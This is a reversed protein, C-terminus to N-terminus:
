HNSETRLRGTELNVGSACRQRGRHHRTPIGFCVSLLHRDRNHKGYITVVLSRTM